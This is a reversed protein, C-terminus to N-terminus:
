VELILKVKERVFKCIQSVISISVYERMQSFSVDKQLFNLKDAIVFRMKSLLCLIIAQDGHSVGLAIGGGEGIVGHVTHHGDGIGLTAHGAVGVRVM